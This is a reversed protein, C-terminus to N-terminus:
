WVFMNQNINKAVLTSPIVISSNPYQVLIKSNTQVYTILSSIGQELSMMFDKNHRLERMFEENQLFIALREDELFQKLESEANKERARPKRPGRVPSLRLFDDPLAGLLPPNWNSYPRAPLPRTTRPAWPTGSESKDQDRPTYAPPPEAPHGSTYSPLRPQGSSGDGTGDGAGMTLLQDITADVLGNNARLVAEIVEDDLTPFMTKFDRMAQTFELQKPENNLRNGTRRPPQSGFNQGGFMPTFAAM